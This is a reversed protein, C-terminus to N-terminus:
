LISITCALVYGVAGRFAEVERTVTRTWSIELAADLFGAFGLGAGADAHVGRIFTPAEEDRPVAGTIACDLYLAKEVESM